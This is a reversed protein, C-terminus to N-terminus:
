AKTEEHSTPSGLGGLPTFAQIYPGLAKGSGASKVDRHLPIWLYGIRVSDTNCLQDFPHDLSARQAPEVSPSLGLQVVTVKSGM